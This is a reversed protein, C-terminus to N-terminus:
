AVQMTDPLRILQCHDAASQPLEATSTHCTFLIVQHTATLEAIAACDQKARQLDFNSLVEDM